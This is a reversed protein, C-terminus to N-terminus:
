MQVEQWVSQVANIIKNLVLSMYKKFFTLIFIKELLVIVMTAIRSVIFLM